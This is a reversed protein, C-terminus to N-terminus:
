VVLTGRSLASRTSPTLAAASWCVAYAAVPLAGTLRDAVPATFVLTRVSARGAPLHSISACASATLKLELVSKKRQQSLTGDPAEVVFTPPTVVVGPPAVPATVPMCGPAATTRAAGPLTM